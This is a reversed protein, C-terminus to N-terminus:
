LAKRVPHSFSLDVEETFAREISWGKNLRYRLTEYPIDLIRSWEMRTHTEGNYTIRVNDTKNNQQTISDAWRVNGPEYDGDNDIRDISYGPERFHPLTSVDDYFSQFSDYWSDCVDIGRAGYNKYRKDNERRCRSKIKCWEHYEKTKSLGHEIGRSCGCSTTHGSLLSSGNIVKTKGIECDCECLWMYSGHKNLGALSLVTLKGFRRGTLDNAKGM